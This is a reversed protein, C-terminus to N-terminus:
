TSPRLIWITAPTNLTSRVALFLRDLEPVYLSTRAGAATVLRGIKRYGGERQGFTDIFGEGCSVYVRQRRSDVFLDDSDGCTEVSRVLSGDRANFVSLMAPHRFVVLVQQNTEDLVLPFNARLSTQRWSQKQENDTRDVIAIERADPVNVFISQGARELRFSEPHAKLPIDALKKRTLPDIIALAGSGYGVYVRSSNEDVRVNDADDGLMVQGVPTFDAASFIRVSGDGANAVYVTDTSPVYVIGQPEKLGTVTRLVQRSKLDIIGVSNNGLEAVYFRQRKLDIALHDIRGSVNGLPIKAEIILPASEQARVAGVLALGFIATLFVTRM